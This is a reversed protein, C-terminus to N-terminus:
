FFFDNIENAFVAVFDMMLQSLIIYKRSCLFLYAYLIIGYSPIYFPSIASLVSHSTKKWGGIPRLYFDFVFLFFTIKNSFAKYVLEVYDGHCQNLLCKDYGHVLKGIKYFPAALSNLRQEFSWTLKFVSGNKLDPFLYSLWEASSRFQIVSLRFHGM